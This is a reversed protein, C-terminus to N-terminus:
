WSDKEVKVVVGFTANNGLNKPSRQGLEGVIAFVGERVPVIELASAPVIWIFAALFVFIRM